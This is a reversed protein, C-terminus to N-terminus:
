FVCGVPNRRPTMRLQSERQALTREANDLFGGSVMVIALAAIITVVLVILPTRLAEIDERNM